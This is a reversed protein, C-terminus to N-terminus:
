SPDLTWYRRVKTEQVEITGDTCLSGIVMTDGTFLYDVRNEGPHEAAYQRLGAVVERFMRAREGEDCPSATSWDHERIESQLVATM